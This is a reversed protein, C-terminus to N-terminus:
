AALAAAADLVPAVPLDGLNRSEPRLVRHPVGWPRWREVPSDGFLAVVPKGLAAALHMAGGDPCVVLSALSLGAVLTALDPTPLPALTAATARGIVEQAAADDGPHRPDDRAGPAWLLLVRGSASLGKCLAAYRELPWQQAPRRASMHVALFPGEGLSTRLALVAAPDPFVRMPGPAGSLGLGRGLDYTREVEHTGKPFTTPSALVQRPKLSHALKLAQPGPAPVLVADWRESRLQREQALRSRIYSWLGERRHKLKEYVFVTDLDPNRALVEANYTTVLAALRARPWRTRLGAILPTTCALDGINDRRVVLIRPADDTPVAM